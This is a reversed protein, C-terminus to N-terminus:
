DAILKNEVARSSIPMLPTLDMVSLTLHAGEEAENEPLRIDGRIDSRAGLREAAKHFDFAVAIPATIFIYEVGDAIACRILSRTLEQLAGSDRFEPLMAFRSFEAYSHQSLKLEPFFAALDIGSQEVPLKQRRSPVSMTLRGGAFCHLGRRAILFQSAADSAEEKASAHQGGCLGISLEERLLRYQHLYGADVTFEYVTKKVPQMSRLARGAVSYDTPPAGTVSPSVQVSHVKMGGTFSQQM